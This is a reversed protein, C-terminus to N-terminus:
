GMSKEFNWSDQCMDEITKKATWNLENKAKDVYAYFSTIDGSKNLCISVHKAM